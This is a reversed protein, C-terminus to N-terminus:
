FTSCIKMYDNEMYTGEETITYKYRNVVQLILYIQQQQTKHTKCM